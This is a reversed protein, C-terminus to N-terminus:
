EHGVTLYNYRNGSQTIIESLYNPNMVFVNSGPKLIKSAEEPSRVLIGSGGIYKGQKAPNIDIVCDIAAKVRQMFLAFIVGKSAGGWVASQKPRGNDCVSNKIIDACTDIGSAFDAPVKAEEEGSFEPHQLTALDAVVFLYQGNFLHGAEYIKEFMRYFGKLRFYNVHEYYIDFWARRKCIWDFCPVEIYVVGEGGNATRVSSLFSVPDPIHELVHRLIVAEGSIGLSQEFYAKIVAPNKGEYAPDVGKVDFGNSLLYELFFGKGCGVEVLSKGSFNRQIIEAVEDLHERFAFSAAQENQYDSGYELLEPKFARNFILGTQMDQVLFVDGKACNLAETQTAFM